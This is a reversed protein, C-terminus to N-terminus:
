RRPTSTSASACAPASPVKALGLATKFFEIESAPGHAVTASKVEGVVPEGDPCRLNNFRGELEHSTQDKVFSGRGQRRVILRAGEMLELAKRMTGSSVGVERALDGENPLAFGPVWEGSAIRETLADRVQLYLARNKLLV